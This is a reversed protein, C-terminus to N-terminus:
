REAEVVLKSIITDTARTGFDGLAEVTPAHLVSKLTDVLGRKTLPVDDGIWEGEIVFSVRFKKKTVERGGEGKEKARRKITV